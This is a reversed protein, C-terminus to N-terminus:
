FRRGWLYGKRDPNFKDKPKKKLPEAVFIPRDVTIKKM